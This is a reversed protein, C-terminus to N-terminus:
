NDSGVMNRKYVQLTIYHAKYRTVQLHDKYRTVQLHAEEVQGNMTCIYENFFCM